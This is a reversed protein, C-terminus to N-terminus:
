LLTELFVFNINGCTSREKKHTRTNWIFKLFRLSTLKKINKPHIVIIHYSKSDAEWCLYIIKVYLLPKSNVFM